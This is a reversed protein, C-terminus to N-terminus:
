EDVDDLIRAALECAMAAATLRERALDLSEQAAHCDTLDYVECMSEDASALYAAATGRLERARDLATSDNFM